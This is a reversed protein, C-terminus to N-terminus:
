AAPDRWRLFPPDSWDWIRQPDHDVDVPLRNWSQSGRVAAGVAHVAFSWAVLVCCVAPLAMRRAAFDAEVRQAVPALLLVLLPTVDTFFRPGYSHGGWWHPFSSIVFWHGVVIALTAVVLDRHRRERWALLGGWVSLVVFPSYVLL